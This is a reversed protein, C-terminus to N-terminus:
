KHFDLSLTQDQNSQQNKLANQKDVYAQQNVRQNHFNKTHYSKIREKYRQKEYHSSKIISDLHDINEKFLQSTPPIVSNHNAHEKEIQNNM